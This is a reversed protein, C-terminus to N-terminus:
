LSQTPCRPQREPLAGNSLQGLQSTSPGTAKSLWASAARCTPLCPFTPDVLASRYNAPVNALDSRKIVIYRDERQFSAATNSSRNETPM